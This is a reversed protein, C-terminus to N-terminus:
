IEENRYVGEKLYNIFCSIDYPEFGTKKAIYPCDTCDDRNDCYLEWEKHYLDLDSDQKILSYRPVLEVEEELYYKFCDKCNSFNSCKRKAWEDPVFCNTMSEKNICEMVLNVLEEPTYCEYRKM